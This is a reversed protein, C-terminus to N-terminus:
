WSTRLVAEIVVASAAGLGVLRWPTPSSQPDDPSSPRRAPAVAAVLLFPFFTLWSREVEGRALGSVTAFVVASAAGVLFPWGPTRRLGRAAAVLAPGCAILLLLVNLVAWIAFPREPQVRLSFDAQAATLGEPWAFGAATTVSLPVLAAAGTVVNLLPRRRVFYVALVSIGLWPASYSFLAAVGVLLGGTVALALTGALGRGRESALVGCAVFAASLALTVADLSVALWLAYPALVLVPLLRRASLEGCLSRVAVGLLPVSAVGILTILVGLVLPRDIGVRGLAWLLLVPGPPHQRTAVTYDESGAVFGRLFGAPDDGVAPVDALHTRPDALPGALGDGGDALALALAWAAAAVYSLVLVWRWPLTEHRGARVVLLVAAAVLPALLSGPSVEIRYSGAFPASATGLRVDLAVALTTLALGTGVLVLWVAADRTERRTDTPALLPAGPPM